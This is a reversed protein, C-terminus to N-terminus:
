SEPSALALATQAVKKAVKKVAVAKKKPAAKKPAAKKAKDPKAKKDKPSDEIAPPANDFGMHVMPPANFHNDEPDTDEALEAAPPYKKVALKVFKAVTKEVMADQKKLFAKVVKKAAAMTLKRIKHKNTVGAAKAKKRAAKTAVVAMHRLIKKLPKSAGARAGVEAAKKVAANQKISGSDAHKKAAKFSLYKAGHNMLLESLKAKKGLKAAKKKDRKKQVAAKEKKENKVRATEREFRHQKIEALRDTARKKLKQLDLFDAHEAAAAKKTATLEKILEAKTMSAFNEEAVVQDASTDAMVCGLAAIAVLAVIYAKM